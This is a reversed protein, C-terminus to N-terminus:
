KSDKVYVFLEGKNDDATDVRTVEYKKGKYEIINYLTVGERYNFVFLRTEEQSFAMGAFIQGQSLQRTYCWIVPTIPELSSVQRGKDNIITVKKFIQAKKDKLFYLGQRSSTAM